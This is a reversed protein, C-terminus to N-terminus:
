NASIAPATATSTPTSTQVNPASASV